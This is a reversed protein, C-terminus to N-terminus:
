QAEKNLSFSGRFYTRMEEPLARGRPSRDAPLPLYPLATLGPPYFAPSPVLFSSEALGPRTPASCAVKLETTLSPPQSYPPHAGMWEYRSGTTTWAVPCPNTKLSHRTIRVANELSPSSATTMSPAQPYRWLVQLPSTTNQFIWEASVCARAKAHSSTSM